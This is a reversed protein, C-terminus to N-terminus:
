FDKEVSPKDIIIDYIERLKMFAMYADTEFEKNYDMGSYTNIENLKTDNQHQAFLWLDDKLPKIAPYNTILIDEISKINDKGITMQKPSIYYFSAEHYAKVIQYYTYANMLVDLAKQDYETLSNLLESRKEPTFHQGSSQGFAMTGTITYVSLVVLTIVFKM